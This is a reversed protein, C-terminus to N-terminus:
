VESYSLVKFEKSPREIVRSLEAVINDYNDVESDTREVDVNTYKYNKNPVLSKGIRDFLLYKVKYSM